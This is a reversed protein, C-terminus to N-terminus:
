PVGLGGLDEYTVFPSMALLIAALSSAGLGSRPTL